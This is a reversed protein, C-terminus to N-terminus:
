PQCVRKARIVPDFDDVVSDTVMMLEGEFVFTFGPKTDYAIGFIDWVSREFGIEGYGLWRDSEKYFPRGVFTGPKESIEHVTPYGRENKMVFFELPKDIIQKGSDVEKGIAYSSINKATGRAIGELLKFLYQLEDSSIALTSHLEEEDYHDRIGHRSNARLYHNIYTIGGKEIVEYLSREGSDRVHKWVYRGSM